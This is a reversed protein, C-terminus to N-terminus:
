LRVGLAWLGSGLAWFGFGLALAWLRSGSDM